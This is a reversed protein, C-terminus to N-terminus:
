CSQRLHYTYVNFNSFSQLCFQSSSDQVFPVIEEPVGVRLIILASCTGLMVDHWINHKFHMIM